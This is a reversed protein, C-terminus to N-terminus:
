GARMQVENQDPEEVHAIQFKKKKKKKKKKEFLNNILSCLLCQGSLAAGSATGAIKFQTTRMYLKTQTM